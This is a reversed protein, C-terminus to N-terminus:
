NKKENKKGGFTSNLTDRLKKACEECLYLQETEGDFSISKKAKGHCGNADCIIDITCDKIKM